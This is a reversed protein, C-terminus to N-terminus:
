ELLRVVGNGDWIRLGIPEGVSEEDVPQLKLAAPTGDARIVPLVLAAMGHRPPGDPRLAWRDLFRQALAPLQAIWARGSTNDYHPFAALAAPVDIFM